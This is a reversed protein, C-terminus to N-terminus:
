AFFAKGPQTQKIGSRGTEEGASMGSFQGQKSFDQEAGDM